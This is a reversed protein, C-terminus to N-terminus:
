SDRHTCGLARAYPAEVTRSASSKEPLQAILRVRVDLPRRHPYTLLRFRVRDGPVANEDVFAGYFSENSYCHSARRGFGLVDPRGTFTLAGRGILGAARLQM